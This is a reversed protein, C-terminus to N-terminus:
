GSDSSNLRACGMQILWILALVGPWSHDLLRFHSLITISKMKFLVHWIVGIPNSGSQHQHASNIM